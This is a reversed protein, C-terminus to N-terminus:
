IELKRNKTDNPHCLPIGPEVTAHNKEGSSNNEKSLSDNHVNKDKVLAWVFNGLPFPM